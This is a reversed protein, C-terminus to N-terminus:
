CKYISCFIFIDYAKVSRENKKHSIEVFAGDIVFVAILVAYQGALIFAIFGFLPNCFWFVLCAFVIHGVYSPVHHVILAPQQAANVM